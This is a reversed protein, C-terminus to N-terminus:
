PMSEVELVEVRKFLTLDLGCGITRGSVSKRDTAAGANDGGGAGAADAGNGTVKCNM